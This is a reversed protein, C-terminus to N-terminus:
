SPVLTAYDGGKCLLNYRCVLIVCNCTPHHPNAPKAEILEVKVDELYMDDLDFRRQLARYSIRRERQLVEIVDALVEEFTM